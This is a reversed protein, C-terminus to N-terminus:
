QYSQILYRANENMAVGEAYKGQLILSNSMSRMAMASLLQHGEGLADYIEVARKYADTSDVFREESFYFDGLEVLVMAVDTHEHGCERVAIKVKRSLQAEEKLTSSSPAGSQSAFNNM